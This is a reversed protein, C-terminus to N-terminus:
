LEVVVLPKGNTIADPVGALALSSAYPPANTFVNM